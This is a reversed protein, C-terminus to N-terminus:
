LLRVETKVGVSGTCEFVVHCVTEKNGKLHIMTQVTPCPVVAVLGGLVYGLLPLPLVNVQEELLM